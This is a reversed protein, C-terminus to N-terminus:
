ATMARLLGDTEKALEALNDLREELERVKSQLEEVDNHFNLHDSRSNRYESDILAGCEFCVDAEPIEVNM